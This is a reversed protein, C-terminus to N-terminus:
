LEKIGNRATIAQAICRFYGIEIIKYDRCIQVRWRNSAKHWSINKLKLKNTINAGRNLLNEQFTVSRLNEIRNDSKNQNIHDCVNPWVGHHYLYILRHQFYTVRNITCRKYGKDDTWGIEKGKLNILLGDDDYIYNMKLYEQNM